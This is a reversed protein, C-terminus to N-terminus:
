KPPPALASRIDDSTDTIADANFGNDIKYKINM